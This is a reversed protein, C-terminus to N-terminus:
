DGRLTARIDAVALAATGIAVAISPLAPRIVDGAAWVGALSTRYRADVRVFGDPDLEVSGRCWESNPLEGIKIVVGEVPLTQAGRPGLLLLGRLADGGEMATVRTDGLTRIRPEGAVRERFERRARPEGRVVLTVDCGAGALILANEYAADGGGVVAVRKGALFGRDRTASYSVGRGELEREGPVGLRRRRAGTVVLAARTGIREGAETALAVGGGPGGAAELRAVRVGYRVPVRAEALQRAYVDALAPGPGAPIGPLERPHFHVHHLQGGPAVGAELVLADLDRSRAWLAASVGAPGAGIVVLEAAV